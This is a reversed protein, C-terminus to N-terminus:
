RGLAQAVLAMIQDNVELWQNLIDQSHTREWQAYLQDAQSRLKRLQENM